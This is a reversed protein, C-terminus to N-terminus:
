LFRSVSGARYITPSDCLFFCYLINLRLHILTLGRFLIYNATGYIGPFQKFFERTLLDVFDLVVIPRCVISLGSNRKLSLTAAADETEYGILKRHSVIHRNRSNRVHTLTHMHGELVIMKIARAAM